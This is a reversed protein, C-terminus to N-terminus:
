EHYAEHILQSIGMKRKFDDVQQAIREPSAGTATIYQIFRHIELEIVYAYEECSLKNANLTGLAMQIRIEKKTM